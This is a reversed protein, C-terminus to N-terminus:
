KDSKLPLNMIHQPGAEGGLYLKGSDMFGSKIYCQYAVRNRCNVTLYLQTAYPYDRELFKPLQKMVTQGIGQGQLQTDILFARFGLAGKEIHTLTTQYNEDILFFGVPDSELEVIYAKLHENVLTLLSDIEGVFPIQEPAVKLTLLRQRDVQSLPVIKLKSNPNMWEDSSLREDFASSSTNAHHEPSSM